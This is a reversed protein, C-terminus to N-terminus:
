EAVFAKRVLGPPGAPLEEISTLGVQDAQAVPLDAERTQEVLHVTSIIQTKAEPHLNM